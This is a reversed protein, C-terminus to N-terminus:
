YWENLACHWIKLPVVRMFKFLSHSVNKALRSLIQPWIFRNGSCPWVLGASAKEAQLKNFKVGFVCFVTKHYGASRHLHNTQSSTFKWPMLVQLYVLSHTLCSFIFWFYILLRLLHRNERCTLTTCFGEVSFCKPKTQNLRRVSLSFKGVAEM